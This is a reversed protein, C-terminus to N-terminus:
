KDVSKMFYGFNDWDSSVESACEGVHTSLVYTKSKLLSHITILLWYSEKDVVVVKYLSFFSISLFFKLRLFIM